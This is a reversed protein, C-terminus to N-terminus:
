RRSSLGVGDAPAMKAPRGRRRTAHPPDSCRHCLPGCSVALPPAAGRHGARARYAAIAAEADPLCAFRQAHVHQVHNAV